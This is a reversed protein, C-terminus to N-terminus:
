LLLFLMVVYCYYMFCYNFGGLREKIFQTRSQISCSLLIFFVVETQGLHRFFDLQYPFM